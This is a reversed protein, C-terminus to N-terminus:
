VYLALGLATYATSTGYESEFAEYAPSFIPAAMYVVFTNLCITVLVFLKKAFPWNLPNSPDDESYWDVLITGDELIPPQLNFPGSRKNLASHIRALDIQQLHADHYPHYGHDRAGHVLTEVDHLIQFTESTAMHGNRVDDIIVSQLRQLRSTAEELSNGSEVLAINSTPQLCRKESSAYRQAISQNREEQYPLWRRNVARVLWGAASDQFGESAM